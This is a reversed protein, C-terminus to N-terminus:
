GEDSCFLFCCTVFYKANNMFGLIFCTVKGLEIQFSELACSHLFFGEEVRSPGNPRYPSPLPPPPLPPQPPLLLLLHSTAVVLNRGVGHPPMAGYCHWSLVPMERCGFVLGQTSSSLYAGASSRSLATLWIIVGLRTILKVLVPQSICNLLLFGTVNWVPRMNIYKGFYVPAYSLIM